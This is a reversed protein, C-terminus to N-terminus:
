GFVAVKAGHGINGGLKAKLSVEFWQGVPSISIPALNEQQEIRRRLADQVDLPYAEYITFDPLRGRGPLKIDISTGLAVEKGAPPITRVVKGEDSGTVDGLSFGAERIKRFAAALTLGETQPVIATEPAVAIVLEVEANKKVQEGFDPSQDIVIGPATESTTENVETHTLNANSLVAVASETSQGVLEPVVVKRTLMWGLTGGVGLVVAVVALIWWPFSKKPVATPQMELNVTPGETYDEDPNAVSIIDIRFTYKGPPTGAPANVTVVAQETGGATFERTDEDTISLWAADTDDQPRLKIQARLPRDSNNTVTFSVDKAAAGPQVKLSDVATTIAFIRPM